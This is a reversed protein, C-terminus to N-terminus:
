LPLGGRYQTLKLLHLFHFFYQPSHKLLFRNLLNHVKFTRHILCFSYCSQLESIQKDWKEAAILVLKNDTHIGGKLSEIFLWWHGHQVRVRCFRREATSQQHMCTYIRCMFLLLLIYLKCRAIVRGNLVSCIGNIM